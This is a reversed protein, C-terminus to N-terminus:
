NRRQLVGALKNDAKTKITWHRKRAIVKLAEMSYARKLKNLAEQLFNTDSGSLSATEAALDLTIMGGPTRIEIAKGVYRFPYDTAKLAEVLLDKNEAKFAVSMM